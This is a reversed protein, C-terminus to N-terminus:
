KLSDGLKEQYLSLSMRIEVRQAFLSPLYFWSNLIIKHLACCVLM